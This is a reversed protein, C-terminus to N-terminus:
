FKYMFLFFIFNIQINNICLFFLAPFTNFINNLSNLYNFDILSSNKFFYSSSTQHFLIMFILCLWELNMLLNFHPNPTPSDILFYFYFSIYSLFPPMNFCIGNWGRMGWYIFYSEYLPKFTEVEQACM